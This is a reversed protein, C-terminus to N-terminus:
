TDRATRMPFRRGLHRIAPSMSGEQHMMLTDLGDRVDAVRLDDYAKPLANREDNSPSV